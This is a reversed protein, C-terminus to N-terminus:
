FIRYLINNVIKDCIIFQRFCVQCALFIQSQIIFAPLILMFTIKHLYDIELKHFYLSSITIFIDFDYRLLLNTRASKSANMSNMYQTDRRLFLHILLSVVASRSLTARTIRRAAASSAASRTSANPMRAVHIASANM